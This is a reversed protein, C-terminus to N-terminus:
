AVWLKNKSIHPELEALRKRNKVAKITLLLDKAIHVIEHTKLQGM